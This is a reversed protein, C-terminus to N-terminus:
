QYYVYADCSVSDIQNTAHGVISMRMHTACIFWMNDAGAGNNRPGITTARGGVLSSSPITSQISFFTPDATRWTVGEDHSFEYATTAGPADSDASSAIFVVQSSGIVPVSRSKFAVTAKIHSRQTITTNSQTSAANVSMTVSTETLSSIVPDTGMGTGSLYGGVTWGAEIFGIQYFTLTVTGSATAKQTLVLYDSAVASVRTGAPIGTGTVRYDAIVGDTIFSGSARTVRTEDAITTVNSVTFTNTLTPNSITTVCRQVVISDNIVNTKKIQM